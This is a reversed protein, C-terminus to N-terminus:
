EHSALRKWKLNRSPWIIVLRLAVHVKPGDVGTWEYRIRGSEAWKDRDTLGMWISGDDTFEKGKM